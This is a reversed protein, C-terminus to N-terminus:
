EALPAYKMRESELQAEFRRQLQIFQVAIVPSVADTIQELYKEQIALRERELDFLRKGMETASRANLKDFVESFERILARDQKALQKMEKDYAKQLPRFADNQEDTMVLITDIASNRKEAVKRQVQRMHEELAMSDSQARPQGLFATAALFVILVRFSKFKSV